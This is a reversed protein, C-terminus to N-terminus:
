NAQEKEQLLAEYLADVELNRNECVRLIKENEKKALKNLKGSIWWFFLVVAIMLSFFVVADMTTPFGEKSFLQFASVIGVGIVSGVMYASKTARENQELYERTSLMKEHKAERKENVKKFRKAYHKLMEPAETIEQEEIETKVMEGFSTDYGNSVKKISGTMKYRYSFQVIYFIVLYVGAIVVVPLIPVSLTIGKVGMYVCGAITALTFVIMMGINLKTNFYHFLSLILSVLNAVFVGLYAILFGQVYGSLNTRMTLLNFDPEHISSLIMLGEFVLVFWAWFKLGGFTEAAMNLVSVDSFYNKCFKELDAGMVKEVATEQAQAELLMDLLDMMKENRYSGNIMHSDCFGDVFLMAEKYDGELKEMMSLYAGFKM